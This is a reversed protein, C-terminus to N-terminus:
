ESAHSLLGDVVKKFIDREVRAIALERELMSIRQQLPNDVHINSLPIGTLAFGQEVIQGILEQNMEKALM